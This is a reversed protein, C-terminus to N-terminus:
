HGSWSRALPLIVADIDDDTIAPLAINRHLSWHEVNEVSKGPAVKTLPSLTEIELFENNTFTELSCGFDTYTKSPDATARKIFVERNLLYAAWTDPSFTGLKQPDANAADQRLTLYKRTFKWRPDALNTYAWMTLPNTAELNAPHHGRPPFSVIELGGPAMMTLAWASFELSFLSRNTIRHTVTVENASASMSIEIEKQLSTLPEVPARAILGSPTPRIEVAVNDPAWTAVPDEPAKWVRDGGRLQFKAEGREGMQDAFEKFLNQGGVFGLRIVRPGVDGTVILEIQGNSVRYCNQWGKYSTKEVNVEASLSLSGVLIVLTYITPRLM